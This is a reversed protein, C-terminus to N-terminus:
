NEESRLSQACFYTLGELDTMDMVKFGSSELLATVNKGSMYRYTKLDMISYIMNLIPIKSIIGNSVEESKKQSLAKSSSYKSFFSNQKRNDIFCGIFFCKPPLISSILRLFDNIEKIHNLEKLNVLTKVNKMEEMDYYYHHISSLIVLGPDRALGLWEIYHRFNESGESVLIEPIRNIKNVDPSADDTFVSPSVSQNNITNHKHIEVSGKM